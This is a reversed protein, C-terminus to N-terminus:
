REKRMEEAEEDRGSETEQKAQREDLANKIRFLGVVDLVHSAPTNGPETPLTRLFFGCTLMRCQWGNCRKRDTVNGKQCECTASAEGERGVFFM